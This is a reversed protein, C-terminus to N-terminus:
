GRELLIKLEDSDINYKSNSCNYQRTCGTETEREPSVMALKLFSLFEHPMETFVYLSLVTESQGKKKEKKGFKWPTILLGVM